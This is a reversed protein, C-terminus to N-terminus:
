YKRASKLRVKKQQVYKEMVGSTLMRAEQGESAGLVCGNVIRGLRNLGETRRSVVEM